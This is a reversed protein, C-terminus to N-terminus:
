FVDMRSHNSTKPSAVLIFRADPFTRNVFRMSAEAHTVLGPNAQIFYESETEPSVAPTWPSVLPVKRKAAFTSAVALCERNYPGIVLDAKRADDLLMEVKEPSEETDSVNVNLNIGKSELDKLAILAGSYYHLFRRSKPDIRNGFTAKDTNFPILMSVDYSDKMGVPAEPETGIPPAVNEAETWAVSDVLLMPEAVAEYNGTKPNYVKPLDKDVNNGADSLSRQGTCGSLVVMALLAIYSSGSLLRLRSRVSTM